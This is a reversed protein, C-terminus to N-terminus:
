TGGHEGAETIEYFPEGLDCAFVADLWAPVDLQAHNGAMEARLTGTRHAFGPAAARDVIPVAHAVGADNGPFCQVLGAHIHHLVRLIEFKDIGLGTTGDFAISWAVHHAGTQELIVYKWDDAEVCM